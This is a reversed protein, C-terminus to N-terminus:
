QINSTLDGWSAIEANASQEMDFSHVQMRHELDAFTNAITLNSLSITPTDQVFMLWHAVDDELSRAILAARDFHATSQNQLWPVLNYFVGLLGYLSQACARYGNFITIGIADLTRRNEVIKEYLTRASVISDGVMRKHSVPDNPFNSSSPNLRFLEEAAVSYTDIVRRFDSEWEPTRRKFPGM